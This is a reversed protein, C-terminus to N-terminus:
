KCYNVHCKSTEEITCEILEVGYQDLLQPGIVDVMYAALNEATPNFPLAVLSNFFPDYDEDTVLNNERAFKTSAVVILSNIMSDQEWHLFKHDWNDELWQCLTTKVVSFDIVRGVDDLSGELAFGSVSKVYGESLTKKPAVKFHFKYNHGHLHRCKSEHGVVRHGACIEHSRIVTYGM